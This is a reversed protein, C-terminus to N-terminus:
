GRRRDRVRQPIFRDFAEPNPLTLRETLLMRRLLCPRLDACEDCVEPRQQRGSLLVGTGFCERRSDQLSSSM